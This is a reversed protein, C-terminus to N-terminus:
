EFEGHIGSVIAAALAQAVERDSSGFQLRLPPLRLTAIEGGSNWTSQSLEDAVLRAINAARPAYGPPLRLNLREVKLM